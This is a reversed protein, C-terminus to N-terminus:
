QPSVERRGSIHGPNSERVRDQIHTSNTTLERGQESLWFQIFTILDELLGSIHALLM